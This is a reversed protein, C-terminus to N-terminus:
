RPNSMATKPTETASKIEMGAPLELLSATGIGLDPLDNISPISQVTGLALIIACSGKAPGHAFM